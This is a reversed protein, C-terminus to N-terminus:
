SNVASASFLMVCHAHMRFSTLKATVTVSLKSSYHFVKFHKDFCKEWLINVTIESATYSFILRRSRVASFFTNWDTKVTPHMETNNTYTVPLKWSKIEVEILICTVFTCTSQRQSNPSLFLMRCTFNEAEATWFPRCYTETHDEEEHDSCASFVSGLPRSLRCVEAEPSREASDTGAPIHPGWCRAPLGLEASGLGRRVTRRWGAGRARWLTLSRERVTVAAATM